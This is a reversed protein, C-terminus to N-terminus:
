EGIFFRAPTKRIVSTLMYAVTGWLLFNIAAVAAPPWNLAFSFTVYILPSHLLYLGYSNKSLHNAVRMNRDPVLLYISAIIIMAAPLELQPEEIIALAIVTICCVAAICSVVLRVHKGKLKTEAGARITCLLAGFCFSWFFKAFYRLYTSIFRWDPIRTRLLFVAIGFATAAAWTVGRNKFLSKLAYAAAFFVFLTPLYWLHGTDTGNLFIKIAGLISCGSYPPYHVVLKIPIMWLLGIILFPVLLRRAKKLFFRTPMDIKSAKAFLYGSLSFFLPMQYLNIFRKIYEFLLSSRGPQYLGWSNSYLIICHGAVVTIIALARINDIRYERKEGLAM